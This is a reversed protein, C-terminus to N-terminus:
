LIIGDIKRFPSFYVRFIFRQIRPNLKRFVLRSNKKITITRTFFFIVDRTYGDAATLMQYNIGTLVYMSVAETLKTRWIIIIVIFSPRTAECISAFRYIIIIIIYNATQALCHLTYNPQFAVYYWTVCSWSNIISNLKCGESVGM